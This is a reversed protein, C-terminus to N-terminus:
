LVDRRRIVLVGTVTLAAAYAAIGAAAVTGSPAAPGQPVRPELEASGTDSGVFLSHTRSVNAVVLGEDSWWLEGARRSLRPDDPFCLGNTLDRGFTLRRGPAIEQPAASAAATVRARREDDEPM